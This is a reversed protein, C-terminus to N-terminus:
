FEFPLKKVSDVSAVRLNSLDSETLSAEEGVQAFLKGKCIFLPYLKSFLLFITV